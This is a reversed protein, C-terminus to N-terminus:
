LLMESVQSVFSACKDNTSRIRLSPNQIGERTGMHTNAPTTNAESTSLMNGPLSVFPHSSPLLVSHSSLNANGVRRTDFKARAQRSEYGYLNELIAM